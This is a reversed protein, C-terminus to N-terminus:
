LDKVYIFKGAEKRKIAKGSELADRVERAFPLLGM